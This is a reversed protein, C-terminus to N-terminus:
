EKQTTPQGFLDLWLTISSPEYLGYIDERSLSLQESPAEVLPWLNSVLKPIYGDNTFVCSWNGEGCINWHLHLHLPMKSSSSWWCAGYEPMFWNIDPDRMKGCAMIEQWLFCNGTLSVIGQRLFFKMNLSIIEQWLFHNGTLTFSKRDFYIIEQWLLHNGSM